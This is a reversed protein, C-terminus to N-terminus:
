KNDGILLRIVQAMSAVADKGLAQRTLAIGQSVAILTAPLVEFPIPPKRGTIRFYDTLVAIIAKQHQARIEGFQEAFEPSRRSAIQLELGLMNLDNSEGEDLRDLWDHLEAELVDPSSAALAILAELEAIQRQLGNTLLELFLADKSPFHFYMAGKTFGAEAAIEELTTADYGLRSFMTGAADLLLARTQVKAQERTLRKPRSTTEVEM